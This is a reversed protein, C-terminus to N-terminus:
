MFTTFKYTNRPHSPFRKNESLPRRTRISIRGQHARFTVSVAHVLDELPFPKLLVTDFEGEELLWPTGSCGIIPTHPRDSNRIHKVVERYDIEPM